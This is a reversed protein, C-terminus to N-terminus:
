NNLMVRFLVGENKKMAKAIDLIHHNSIKFFPIYFCSINKKIHILINANSAILHKQRQRREYKCGKERKRSARSYIFFTKKKIWKM